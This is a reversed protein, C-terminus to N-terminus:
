CRWRVNQGCLAAKQGERGARRARLTGTGISAPRRRREPLASRPRPWHPPGPKLPSTERYRGGGIARGDGRAARARGKGGDRERHTPSSGRDRRMRGTGAGDTGWSREPRAAPPLPCRGVRRARNSGGAVARTGDPAGPIHPPPRCRGGM